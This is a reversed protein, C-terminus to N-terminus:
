KKKVNVSVISDFPVWAELTDYPYQGGSIERIVVGGNYVTIDKAAVHVGPSHALNVFVRLDHTAASQFADIIFQERQEPTAM